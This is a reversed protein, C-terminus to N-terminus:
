SAPRAREARHEARRLDDGRGGGPLPRGAGALAPPRDPLRLAPRARPPRRAPLLRRRGAREPPERPRHLRLAPRLRRRAPPEPRRGGLRPAARTPRETRRAGRAPRDAGAPGHGLAALATPRAACCRTGPSSPRAQPRCDSATTGPRGARPQRAGDVPALRHPAAGASRLRPDRRLRRRHLRHPRRGRTLYPRLVRGCATSWVRSTAGPSAAASATRTTASSSAACARPRRPRRLDLPDFCEAEIRLGEDLPRGFGRVAAEKDTRIAPQPLAAIEHALELAREVCTGSPVVENVLGIRLAEEADIVRGTIILEM